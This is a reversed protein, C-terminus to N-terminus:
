RGESAANRKRAEVERISALMRARMEQRRAVREVSNRDPDLLVAKAKVDQWKVARDMFTRSRIKIFMSPCSM